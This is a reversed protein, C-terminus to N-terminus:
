QTFLQTQEIFANRHSVDNLLSSALGGSTGHIYQVDNGLGDMLSRRYVHAAPIVDVVNHLNKLFVPLSRSDSPMLFFTNRIEM